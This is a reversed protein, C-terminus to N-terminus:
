FLNKIELLNDIKFDPEEESDWERRKVLITKMGVSKAGKIDTFPKDGFMCCNEPKVGLKESILHFCESDPKSNATDEGGVVIADFMDSFKLPNIRERKSINPGDLDTLLGMLYDKEELYELVSDLSSFPTASDEYTSWYTETLEEILSGSLDDDVGIRKLFLPWWENRNYKRKRNMEDDFESLKQTLQKTELQLQKTSYHKTIKEATAKQAAKLGKQADILTEDLDFIIAKINELKPHKM